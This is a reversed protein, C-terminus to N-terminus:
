GEAAEKARKVAQILLRTVGKHCDPCARSTGLFRALDDFDLAGHEEIVARVRASSLGHQPCLDFGERDRLTFGDPDARYDVFRAEWFRREFEVMAVEFGAMDTELTCGEAELRAEEELFPLEFAMLLALTERMMPDLTERQDWLGRLADPTLPNEPEQVMLLPLVLEKAERVEAIASEIFARQSMAM